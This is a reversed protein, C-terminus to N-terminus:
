ASLMERYVAAYRPAIADWDYAAANKKGAEGMARRQAPDNALRILAGSAAVPDDVPILTGCEPPVIDPIGGTETGLVACGAAQAELFVNGLAESRSLGAFIEAAAFEKLVAAHDLKGTFVALPELGLEKALRELHPREGGDGVIRLSWGPIRERAAALARLLTDVGKMPELRGVFAIRGPVKPHADCAAAIAGLPIGNPILVADTRGFGAARAALARSIVTVRTAARHMAGVLLATNTSQCTLLRPTRPMLWSCLVLALGAYSELVAHVVDPRLRKAALPALLPFLYKDFSCGFGVRTVAVGDVSDEKPLDRRLRATVIRVEFEGKLRASVEEACAEAGSRFPRLFASLVVVRQV